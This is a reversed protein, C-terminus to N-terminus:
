MAAKFWTQVRAYDPTDEYSLTQIYNLIPRFERPLQALFRERLSAKWADDLHKRYRRNVSDAQAINNEKRLVIAQLFSYSQTQLIGSCYKDKVFKRINTRNSRDNMFIKSRKKLKVAFQRVSIRIKFRSRTDFQSPKRFLSCSKSQAIEKNSVEKLLQMHALDQCSFWPLGGVVLEVLLYFCSELEDGLGVERQQHM